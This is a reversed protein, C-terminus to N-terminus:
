FLQKLNEKWRVPNRWKLWIIQIQRLEAEEYFNFFYLIIPFLLIAITKVILRFVLILDSSLLSIYVLVAGVLFILIIKGWEYRIPYIKNSFYFIGIFFIMQSILSALAAGEAGLYPILLINLVLNLSSVIITMLTIRSTKKAIRLGISVVDRLAVFFLGFAILPIVTFSSWYITSGTFLKIVEKGFLSVGMICIMMGFGYYTMTKQYFRHSDSDKMKKFMLPTLAMSVSTIVFVKLISSIKYALSYLGVEELGSMSNLVFRDIVNTSAAALGAMMMSFGYGMMEKFIAYHIRLISNRLIYPILIILYLLFGAIQGIYIAYLGDKHNLLLYLTVFLTVLLKIINSITFFAARDQIRMLSAPLQGLAQMGTSLIVLVVVNAYDANGFFLSSVQNKYIYTISTVFVILITVLISSTFFTAKNEEDTQDYYWRLLSNYLGLGLVSVTMQNIAELIGLAGFNQVSLYEPDTLFPILVFGVLKVSINGIGYILSNKFAEKVYKLM